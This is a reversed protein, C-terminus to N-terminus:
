TSPQVFTYVKKQPLSYTLLVADYCMYSVKTSLDQM